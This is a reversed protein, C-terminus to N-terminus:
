VKPEQVQLRGPRPNANLTATVLLDSDRVEQLLAKMQEPTYEKREGQRDQIVISDAYEFADQRVTGVNVAQRLKRLASDYVEVTDHREDKSKKLIGMTRFVVEEGQKFTVPYYEPNSM